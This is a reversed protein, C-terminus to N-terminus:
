CTSKIAIRKQEAPQERQARVGPEFGDLAGLMAQMVAPPLASLVVEGGVHRVHVETGGFRFEEPTRAAHSSGRSFPKTVNM